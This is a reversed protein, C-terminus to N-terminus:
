ARLAGFTFLAGPSSTKEANEPQLRVKRFVHQAM